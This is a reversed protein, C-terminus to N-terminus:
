EETAEAMWQQHWVSFYDAVLRNVVIDVHDTDLEFRDALSSLIHEYLGADVGGSMFASATANALQNKSLEDLAIVRDDFEHAIPSVIKWFQENLNARM